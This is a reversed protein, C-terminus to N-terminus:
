WVWEWSFLEYGELGMYLALAKFLLLHGIYIELTRRGCLQLFGRGLITAKATLQPFTLSKFHYLGYMVAAMGTALVAMKAGFLGYGFCQLFVYGVWIFVAYNYVQRQDDEDNQHRVLYGFIAMVFALAGYEFVIFTPLSLIFLSVSGIWLHRTSRSLVDMLPNLALRVVAITVLINLPFMGMGFIYNSIILIVAGAILTGPIDRSRAYGILFLWIPFSLRGITRWWMEDPFFYIGIHDIIMTIVAATKLLDYSTIDRPLTQASM